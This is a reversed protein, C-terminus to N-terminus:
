RGSVLGSPWPPRRSGPRWAWSACSTRCTSAPRRRASSSPPPWRAFPGDPRWWGWCRSRGPRSGTARWRTPRRGARDGVPVRWRGAVAEIEDVVLRAGIGSAIEHSRALLGAAEDRAGGATLLAAALRLRSYAQTLPEVTADAAVVATRWRQPDDDGSARAADAEALAGYVRAEPRPRGHLDSERATLARSAAMLEDVAATLGGDADGAARREADARLGFACIIHGFENFSTALTARAGDLALARADDWRREAVALPVGTLARGQLYQPDDLDETTPAVEDYLARAEGIRGQLVYLRTLWTRRFLDLFGAAPEVGTLLREAEALRGLRILTAAGTAALLSLHEPPAGLQELDDYSRQAVTLAEDFRNLYRLHEAVNYAVTARTRRDGHRRILEVARTLESRGEEDDGGESVILGVGVVMHGVGAAVTDDVQEAVEIAHRAIPIMETFESRTLLVNARRALVQALARSPSATPVIRAAEEILATAEAVRGRNREAISRSVLVSAARHPDAGPDIEAEAAVLHEAAREFRGAEVAAAGARELLAGHDLGDVPVPQGAAAWLRLARELQALAEAPASQAEAAEAARLTEALARAYDGAAEWHHAREAAAAAPSASASLEPRRTLLAAVRRHTDTREAPGLDAAVAEHALAHRFSYGEDESSLMAAGVLGAVAADVEPPPLRSAALLLGRRVRPGAVAVVRAVARAGTGLGSLRALVAARVTDPLRISEPDVAILEEAFFPNGASRAYVRDVLAPAPETGLIGALQDATESRSLPALEIRELWPTPGIQTLLAGLARTRPLEDSRYTGLILARDHGLVRACFLALDCTSQDAWHLDELVVLLPSGAARTALEDAVARFLRLRDGARDGLFLDVGLIEALPGYPLVEGLPLCAGELVATGSAGAWTAIERVLRTKGVGAEGGVLALRVDGDGISRIASRLREQEAM